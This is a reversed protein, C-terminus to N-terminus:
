LLSNEFIETEAELTAEFPCTLANKAKVTTQVWENLENKTFSIDNPLLVKMVKEFEDLSNLGLNLLLIEVKEPIVEEAKRLYETLLLGNAMGHPIDKYFTLPYGMSHVITTGTQAIVIGGLTSAWLLEERDDATFKGEILAKIKKGWIRMGKLAVYETMDGSRTNTYSEILHSLADVATNRTIQVPLNETYKGDVFAVKYFTDETSFSRKTHEDTVTLVSYQTVESGTGATTPIAVMPLPKVSYNCNYIDMPAMESNVGYVAVAKAADLPSGGGIGIIFDANFERAEKGAEFCEEVTPNNGIRDCIAYPVNNSDLINVVDELAGSIRGSTKGTVIFARKGLLLEKYNNALCDRGKFIKTPIYFKM